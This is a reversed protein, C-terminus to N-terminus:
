IEQDEGMPSQRTIALMQQYLDSPTINSYITGLVHWKHYM